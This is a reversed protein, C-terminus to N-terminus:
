GINKNKLNKHKPIYGFWYHLMQNIYIDAEEMNMVEKPFDKYFVEYGKDSKFDEINELMERCLDIAYDRDVKFITQALKEAISLTNNRSAKEINLKQEQVYVGNLHRLTISNISKIM